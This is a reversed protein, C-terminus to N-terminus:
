KRKRTVFAGALSILATLSLTGSCIMSSCGGSPEETPSLINSTDAPATAPLTDIDLTTDTSIAKFVPVLDANETFSGTKGDTMKDGYTFGEFEMGSKLGPVLCVECNYGAYITYENSLDKNVTLEVQSCEIPALYSLSAYGEVGNAKIKAFTGVLELMEVKTGRNLTTVVDYNTSPGKRLNLSNRATVIYTDSLESSTINSKYNPVAYGVIYTDSPRYSKIYVGNSTNGEVTYIYGNATGIVLGVHDSARTSTSSKFFIIDGKLPEYTGREYYSYNSSTEKFKNLWSTCNVHSPAVSKSINARRLCFTVFAACWPYGFERVGDGNNDLAGYNYCYETFNGDGSTNLGNFEAESNGESYYLQSLAIAVVDERQDGTLNVALLSNYYTSGKYSDSPTTYSVGAASTSVAFVLLSSFTLALALLLPLFLSTRKKMTHNRETNKESKM